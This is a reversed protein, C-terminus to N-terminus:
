NLFNTVCNLYCIKWLLSRLHLYFDANIIASITKFQVVVISGSVM